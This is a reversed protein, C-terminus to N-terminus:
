IVSWSGFNPPCETEPKPSIPISTDGKESSDLVVNESVQGGKVCGGRSLARYLKIRGDKKAMVVGRNELRQLSKKVAAISGGILPDAALDQRSVWGGNITLRNVIKDAVSGARTQREEHKEIEKIGVTLDDNQIQILTEGQRNIRSKGVTVVRQDPGLGSDKKPHTINWVEAVAATIASSGRAGGAKAAHHLIVISCAPWLTGNSSNLWYIPQAFEAKNEDGAKSGSCSSLSDICIMVPKIENMRRVFQMRRYLNFDPEFYFDDQNKVEHLDFEEEFDQESMDGNFYIVPGPEIPVAQNKLQFPIGDVVHKM